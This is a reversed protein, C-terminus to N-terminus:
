YPMGILNLAFLHKGGQSHIKSTLDFSENLGPESPFTNGSAYINVLHSFIPFIFVSKEQEIHSVGPMGGGNPFEPLIKLRLIGWNCGSLSTITPRTKRPGVSQALTQFFQNQTSRRTDDSLM